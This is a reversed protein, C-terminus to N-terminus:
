PYLSNKWSTQTSIMYPQHRWRNKICSLLLNEPEKERVWESVKQFLKHYSYTLHRNQVIVILIMKDYGCFFAASQLSFHKLMSTECTVGFSNESSVLHAGLNVRNKWRPRKYVTKKKTTIVIMVNSAFFFHKKPLNVIKWVKWIEYRLFIKSLVCKLALSLKEECKWESM